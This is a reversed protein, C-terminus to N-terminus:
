EWLFCAILELNTQRLRTALVSALNTMVTYGMHANGEFQNLLDDRNIILLDCDTESRATASRRGKDVLILEGFVEGTQVRSVKAAETEGKIGLEICVKGNTVVYLEDGRDKESFIVENAKYKRLQCLQAISNLEENSLDKFVPAKKLIQEINM